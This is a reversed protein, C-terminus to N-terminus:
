EETTRCDCPAGETGGRPLHQHGGAQRKSRCHLVADDAYRAFRIGQMREAIARLPVGDDRLKRM